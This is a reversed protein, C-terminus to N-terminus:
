GVIGDKKQLIDGDRSKVLISVKGKWIVALYIWLMDLGEEDFKNNQHDSLTIVLDDYNALSSEGKNKLTLGAEEAVERAVEGLRSTESTCKILIDPHYNEWTYSTALKDRILEYNTVNHTAGIEYKTMEEKTSISFLKFKRIITPSLFERIFSEDRYNAVISNISKVWDTNAYQPLFDIDEQTPNECIRKIDQFMALGLAYPNISHWGEKSGSDRQYTVDCHSHIFNLMYGDDIYGQDYLDHMLTYHAFSAFGENMLKTQGQPYFYQQITRIIKFVEKQWDKLVTQYSNTRELFSLLNESTDGFDLHSAIVSRRYEKFGGDIVPNYSRYLDETRATKKKRLGEKTKHVQTTKFVSYDALLHAMDLTKSVDILGYKEECDSIYHKAYLLYDVFSEPNTWEKFLYNNKFFHNHGVAAHATVLLQMMMDNDEMIYCISPNTNIIMEYAMGRNQGSEYDKQAQIQRKGFSWHSYYVPMGITTYSDLMQLSSVIEFQVPYGEWGYKEKAIKNIVEWGQEIQPVLWDSGTFLPKKRRKM